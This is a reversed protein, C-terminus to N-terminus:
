GPGPKLGALSRIAFGIAEMDTDIQWQEAPQNLIPPCQPDRRSDCFRGLASTTAAALTLLFNLTKPEKAGRAAVRFSSATDDISADVRSLRIM